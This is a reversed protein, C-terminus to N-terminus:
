TPRSVILSTHTKTGRTPRPSPPFVSTDKTKTCSRAEGFLLEPSFRALSVAVRGRSAMDSSAHEVDADLVSFATEQAGAPRVSSASAAFDDDYEDRDRRPDEAFVVSAPRARSELDCEEREVQEYRDKKKKHLRLHPPRSECVFVLVSRGRNLVELSLSLSFM